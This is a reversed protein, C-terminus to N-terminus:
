HGSLTDLVPLLGYPPNGLHARRVPSDGGTLNSGGITNWENCEAYLEGTFDFGGRCEASKIAPGFSDDGCLLLTSSDMKGQYM